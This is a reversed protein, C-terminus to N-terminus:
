FTQINSPIATPATGNVLLECIMLVVWTPSRRSGGRTRKGSGSDEWEKKMHRKTESSSELLTSAIQLEEKTRHLEKAVGVLEDETDRRTQGEQRLKLLRGHALANSRQLKKTAQREKVCAKKREEDLELVWENLEHIERELEKHKSSEESIEKRRKSKHEYLKDELQQKNKQWEAQKANYSKEKRLLQAQLLIYYIGTLLSLFMTQIYEHSSVMTQNHKNEMHTLDGIYKTSLTNIEKAHEKNLLNIAKQNDHAMLNNDRTIKRLSVAHEEEIHVIKDHFTSLLMDHQTTTVNLLKEIANWSKIKETKLSDSLSKLHTQICEVKRKSRINSSELSGIKHELMDAREKLKKNEAKIEKKTPSNITAAANGISATASIAASYVQLNHTVVLTDM